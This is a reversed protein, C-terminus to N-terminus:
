IVTTKHLVLAWEMRLGMLGATETNERLVASPYLIYKIYKDANGEVNGIKLLWVTGNYSTPIIATYQFIQEKTKLQLQNLQLILSLRGLSISEQPCNLPWQHHFVCFQFINKRIGQAAMLFFFFPAIKNWCAQKLLAALEQCIWVDGPTNATNNHWQDSSQLTQPSQVASPLESLVM